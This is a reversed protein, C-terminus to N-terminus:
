RQGVNNSKQHWIAPCVLTPNQYTEAFRRGIGLGIEDLNWGVRGHLVEDRVTAKVVRVVVSAQGPNDGSGANCSTARISGKVVMSGNQLEIPIRVGTSHVLSQEGADVGWGTERLRGFCLIPQHVSSSIAVHEKLVVKRGTEDTLHVEIDRMGMVPIKRGQADHLQLDPMNSAMGATAYEEPFVAAGAGSDLLICKLEVNEWDSVEDVLVRVDGSCRAQESVDGIFFQHVVRV